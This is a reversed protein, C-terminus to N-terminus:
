REGFLDNQAKELEEAFRRRVHSLPQPRLGAALDPAHRRRCDPLRITLASAALCFAGTKGDKWAQLKEEDEEWVVSEYKLVFPKRM